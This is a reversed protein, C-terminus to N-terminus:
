VLAELPVIARADGIHGLASAAVGRVVASRDALARILAPVGRVDGLRGLGVAAAIRAKEDADRELAISLDRVRDAHASRPALAALALTLTFVSTVVSWRSFSKLM